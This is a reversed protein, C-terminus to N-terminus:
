GRCRSSVSSTAWATPTLACCWCIMPPRSRCSAPVRFRWCRAGPFSGIAAGMASELQLVPPSSTDRPDVTKRNVIM